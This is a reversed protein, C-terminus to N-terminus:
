EWFESTLENMEDIDPLSLIDNNLGASNKMQLINLVADDLRQESLEGNKVANVIANITENANEYEFCVLLMDCGANLAKM